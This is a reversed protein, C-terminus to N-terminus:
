QGIAAHCDLFFSNQLSSIYVISTPVQVLPSQLTMVIGAVPDLCSAFTNSAHGNAFIATRLTPFLPLKLLNKVFWLVKNNCGLKVIRGEVPIHTVRQAFVQRKQVNRLNRKIAETNQMIFLSHVAM